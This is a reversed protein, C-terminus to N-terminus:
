FRCRGKEGVLFRLIGEESQEIGSLLLISFQDASLGDPSREDHITRVLFMKERDTLGDQKTKPGDAPGQPKVPLQYQEDGFHAILQDL